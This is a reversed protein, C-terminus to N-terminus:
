IGLTQWEAVRGFFRLDIFRRHNQFARDSVNEGKRAIRTACTM